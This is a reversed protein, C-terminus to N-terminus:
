SLSAHATSDCTSLGKGKGKDKYDYCEASM